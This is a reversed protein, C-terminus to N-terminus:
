QKESKDGVFLPIRCYPTFHVNSQLSGDLSETINFTTSSRPLIVWVELYHFTQMCTPTQAQTHTWTSLFLSDNTTVPAQLLVM